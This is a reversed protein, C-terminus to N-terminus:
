IPDMVARGHGDIVWVLACLFALTIFGALGVPSNVLPQGGWAFLFFLGASGNVVGHLVCPGWVARVRTRSWDFLYSLLTCFVVMLLIGVFPHDPYNHGMLILPAHWLGWVVGTFLVRRMASWKSCVHFLYGRWGLEEGLMFPLSVTCATIVASLVGGALVLGAPVKALADLAIAPVEMGSALAMEELSSRLREHSVSAHGFANIGVTDGLVHVVLLVLPVIAMGLLATLALQGWRMGKLTLGLESWPARDIFRQQVIAALAPMLMCTAAVFIYVMGSTARVGFAAAVGAILWTSAFALLLFSLIRKDSFM